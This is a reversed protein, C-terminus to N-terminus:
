KSNFANRLAACALREQQLDTNAEAAAANMEGLHLYVTNAAVATDVQRDIEARLALNAREAAEVFKFVIMVTLM